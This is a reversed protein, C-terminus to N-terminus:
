FFELGTRLLPVKLFILDNSGSDSTQYIFGSLWSIREFCPHCNQIQYNSYDIRSLINAADAVSQLYVSFSFAGLLFTSLISRGSLSAM